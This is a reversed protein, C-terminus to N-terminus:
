EPSQALWGLMFSQVNDAAELSADTFDGAHDVQTAIACDDHVSLCREYIAISHSPHHVLWSQLNEAHDPDLLDNESRHAVLCATITPPGDADIQTYYDVIQLLMQGSESTDLADYTSHLGKDYTADFWGLTSWFSTTFSLLSPWDRTKASVQSTLHGVVSVRTSERLVPDRHEVDGLDPVTAVWLAIQGGASSGWVGIREPDINLDEARYKLYQIARAGDRFIYDKRCGGDSGDCTGNPIDPTLDPNSSSSGYRYNASAVAVGEALYAAIDGKNDHVRDKDGSSFGGGHFYMVIPTNAAMVHPLYLDMTNRSFPGYSANEIFTHPVADPYRQVDGDEFVMGTRELYETDQGANYTSFWAMYFARDPDVPGIDPQVQSDDSIDEGPFSPMDGSDSVDDTLVADDFAPEIGRDDADHGCGFLLGLTVLCVIRNRM